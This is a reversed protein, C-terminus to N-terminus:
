QCDEDVYDLNFRSKLREAFSIRLHKSYKGFKIEANETVASVSVVAMLRSFLQSEM